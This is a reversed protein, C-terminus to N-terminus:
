KLGGKIFDSGIKIATSIGMFTVTSGTVTDVKEEVEYKFLPLKNSDSGHGVFKDMYGPKEARKGFGPTEGNEMLKAGLVTGDNKYSAMITMAGGYGKAKLYLIYGITKGSDDITYYSSVYENNSVIIERDSNASGITVLESLTKSKAKDELKKIEPATLANVIGLILASASCIILLKLAMNATKNLVM